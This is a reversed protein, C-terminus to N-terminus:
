SIQFIYSSKTYSGALLIEETLGSGRLEQGTGLIVGRFIWGLDAVPNTSRGAPCM